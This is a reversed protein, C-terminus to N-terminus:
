LALSIYSDEPPKWLFVDHRRGVLRYWLRRTTHKVEACQITADQVNEGFIDKMVPFRLFYAELIQLRSTRLTFDGLQLNIETDVNGHADQARRLYSEYSDESSFPIQVIGQKRDRSEPIFRGAGGTCNLQEWLRNVPANAPRQRTGTRTAVRVVSELV